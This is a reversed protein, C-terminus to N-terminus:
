ANKQESNTYSLKWWSARETVGKCAKIHQLYRDYVQLDGHGLAGMAREPFPLVNTLQIIQKRLFKLSKNILKKLKGFQEGLVGTFFAADNHIKNHLNLVLLKELVARTTEDGVTKLFARYTEICYNDHYASCMDRLEFAQLDAFAQDAGGEYESLTKGALNALFSARQAFLNSLDDVNELDGGFKPAKTQGLSLYELTEPLPKGKLLKRIGGLIFKQTQMTLVHSDGEWTAHLDNFNLMQSFLSYYSYGHGGCAKRCEDVANQSTWSVFAKMSSSLAHVVETQVNGEELLKPLNDGWMKVLRNAGIYHVFQEAFRTFLRFQHLPYDLLLVENGTPGFQRRVSAYRIAITCAQLALESSMRGIMVRGGSLSSISNAFRKGENEIATVYKGDATVDAFKNLLTERPVHYDEFKIWGNDVGNLGKKYGCDGIEIGPFPTHTTRDRIQILFAHVGKRVREGNETIYLQAFIVANTATKALGGIWFKIATKTPSHLIFESTQKDYDATIEIGRVNSGHGMETLGFCGLTKLACGELLEQRHRETGLNKITKCYLGYQVLYRTCTAYNFAGLSIIGANFADINDAIKEPTTYGKEFMKNTLRIILENSDKRETDKDAVYHSPDPIGHLESVCEFTEFYSPPLTSWLAEQAQSLNFTSTNLERKLDKSPRFHGKLLSLRNLAQKYGM